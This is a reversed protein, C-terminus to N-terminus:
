RTVLPNYWGRPRTVESNLKRLSDVLVKTLRSHIDNSAPM